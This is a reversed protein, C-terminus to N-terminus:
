GSSEESVFSSKGKSLYSRIYEGRGGDQTHSFPATLCFLISLCLLGGRIIDECSLNNAWLIDAPQCESYFIRHSHESSNDGIQDFIIFFNIQILLQFTSGRKRKSNAHSKWSLLCPTYIVQSVLGELKHEGAAQFPPSEIGCSHGVALCPTPCRSEPM